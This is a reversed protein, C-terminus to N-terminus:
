GHLAVVVDDQRDRGEVIRRIISDLKTLGARKEKDYSYQDYVRSTEGPQTHNLIRGVVDKMVDNATMLTAGTRRIDHPRAHVGVRKLDWIWRQPNRIPKGSITGPFVYPSAPQQQAKLGNLIEIAAPVLYVRHQRKNKTRAGPITWWRDGLDLEAWAMGLIEGRRQCTLIALKFFAAVNAPQDALAMWLAKIEPASLVRERPYEQVPRAVKYAPSAQILDEDVAWGFLKRVVALTRNAMVGKETRGRVDALLVKIDARTIDRAKRADWAPGLYRNIIQRYESQTNPRLKQSVYENLFLDAISAFSEANRDQAKEEAKEAAPDQGGAVKGLAIKAAARADAVGLSAPDNNPNYEGLRLRKQVGNLRYMLMWTKRGTLAVRLGFGHLTTDWIDVNPYKHGPPVKASAVVVVTLNKRM